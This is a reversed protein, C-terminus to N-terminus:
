RRSAWLKLLVVASVAVILAVFGPHIDKSLSQARDPNLLWIGFPTAYVVALLGAPWRLERLRPDRLAGSLVLAVPIVALFAFQGLVMIPVAWASVLVYRPTRRSRAPAPATPM